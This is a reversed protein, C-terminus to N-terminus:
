IWGAYTVLIVTILVIMVVFWPSKPKNTRAPSPVTKMEEEQSPEPPPLEQEIVAPEIGSIETHDNETKKIQDFAEKFLRVPVPPENEDLTPESVAVMPENDDIAPATDVEDERLVEDFVDEQQFDSESFSDGSALDESQLEEIVERVDAVTVQHKQEVACHLLLRSCIMNIRRPIGESFKYILPYVPKSIAPDGRWQVTELRHRIYAETEDKELAKIHSAAIIRQRVQEMRPSLILKRLEPQGLLFIQLLPRADVQINTLLRLEEMASISLDQAEDVILLARRGESSWARLQQTLRQLIEGKKVISVPIGFEYAVMKLLDDAKLQTCVLNVINVPKDALKNVLAGILTTKGVGPKGIIVVFGEARM